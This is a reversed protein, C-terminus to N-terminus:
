LLVVVLAALRFVMEEMIQQVLQTQIHVAGAEVV